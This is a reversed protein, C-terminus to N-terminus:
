ACCKAKKSVDLFSNKIDAPTVRSPRSASREGEDTKSILFSHLYVEVVVSPLATQLRGEWGYPRLRDETRSDAHPGIDEVEKSGKLHM